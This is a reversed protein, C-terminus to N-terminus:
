SASSTPKSLEYVLLMTRSNLDRESRWNTFQSVKIPHRKKHYLNAKNM